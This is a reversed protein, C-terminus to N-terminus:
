LDRLFARLDELTVMGGQDEQTAWSSVVGVINGLSDVVPSGSSGPRVYVNIMNCHSIVTCGTIIGSPERLVQSGKFCEGVEQIPYFSSWSENGILYGESESLVDFPYGRTFIKSGTKLVAGIRLAHPQKHIRVACLDTVPNIKVIPGEVLRGGEFNARMMGHHAGSNCVHWNTLLYNNGSAGEVISGSGIAIRVTTLSLKEYASETAYASHLSFWLAAGLLLSSSFIKLLGWSRSSGLLAIFFGISFYLLLEPNFIM